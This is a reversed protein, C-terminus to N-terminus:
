FLEPAGLPSVVAAWERSRAALERYHAVREVDTMRDGADRSLLDHVAYGPSRWSRRKSGLAFMPETAISFSVCRM